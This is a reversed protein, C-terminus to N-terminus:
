RTVVALLFGDYGKAGVTQIATASLTPETAILENMARVGAVAPDDNDPDVVTGGRVVNDVVIVTGPRSLRLAWSVYDPNSPKDADIFVLDFPGAGEDILAALVDLAPGVRVEARADLGAADLNRRAVEAHEPSREITVVEGDAPLERALHITSYGALTGVELVRRAGAAATLVQLLRGHMASVAISPLGAQDARELTSALVEDDGVFLQELYRDVDAAIDEGM